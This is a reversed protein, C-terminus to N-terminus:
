GQQCRRRDQDPGHFSTSAGTCRRCRHAAARSPHSMSRRRVDGGGRRRGRAVVVVVVVIRRGRVVPHFVLLFVVVVVPHCVALVVVVDVVVVTVSACADCRRPSHSSHFSSPTYVRHFPVLVGPGTRFLGERSVKVHRVEWGWEM